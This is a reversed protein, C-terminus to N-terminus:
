QPPLTFEKSLTTIWESDLPVGRIQQTQPGRAMRLIQKGHDSETAMDPFLM